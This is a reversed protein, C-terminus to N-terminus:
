PGTGSVAGPCVLAACVHGGSQRRAGSTGLYASGATATRRANQRLSRPDSRSGTTGLALFETTLAATSEDSSYEWLVRADPFYYQVLGSTVGAKASVARYTVGAYGPEIMLREVCDLLPDRTKSTEADVRREAM